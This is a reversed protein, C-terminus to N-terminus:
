STSVPYGAAKVHAVAAARHDPGRTECRIMIEVEGVALRPDSRVHNIDLVNVETPRGHRPPALQGPQDPIRGTLPRRVPRRRCPRSEPDPQAALTSTAARCWWWSPRHSRRRTPSSPASVWSVPPSPWSNATRPDAPGRPLDRRASRSWETWWRPPWPWRFIAPEAVAIGDAMTAPASGRPGPSGGGAVSGVACMGGGAGGVVAAASGAAHLAAAVGALLGGGGAPVVVTAAEPVDAAIELGVSGQGLVIDRHDFPHIM